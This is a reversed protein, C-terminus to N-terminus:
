AGALKVQVYRWERQTPGTYVAWAPSVDDQNFTSTDGRMYVTPSGSGTGYKNLTVTLVKTNSNLLDKVPGHGTGAPGFIFKGWDSSGIVTIPGSAGDDWTSWSEPTEIAPSAEGWAIGAASLSSSSSSSSLSSSSSSSSLSSSSSSSSISSSSSSSSRSSSSSSSSSSLSSSSSSSSSSISSSSSSSSLSSSSSSSSVSSSSSSSSSSRSSSSSSSSSSISSSSSSSSSSISSSSSSSSISSSSSSSSGNDWGTSTNVENNDSTYALWSAGGSVNLPRDTNTGDDGIHCYYVQNTGGSDSLTAATTTTSALHITYSATGTAIFSSVTQTTGTTFKVIQATTANITLTNFINSGDIIQTDGSISLVEMNYYTLGGGSFTNTTTDAQSDGFMITSQECYLTLGTTGFRWSNSHYGGGSKWQGEGMYVVRTTSGNCIITGAAVNYGASDFTGATITFVRGSGGQVISLNGTLTYTSGVANINTGEGWYNAISYSGRRGVMTHTNNDTPTTQGSARYIVNGYFEPSVVSTNYTFSGTGTFDISPMRVMDEDIHTTGDISNSDIYCTDQPLPVRTSAMQSGGGNTATYWYAYDSFNHTGSGNWYWDDATTLTLTGGGSISNNGCDGSLGSIASFDLAGTSVFAIDRFDVNSCGSITAGTLTITRATGLTNSYVLMRNLASNGDVNFTGTVTLNMSTGINLSCTKSATGTRNLTGITYTKSSTGYNAFSFSGAGTVNITGISVSDNDLSIYKDTGTFNFTTNTMTVSKRLLANGTLIITSYGFNSSGSTHVVTLNAWNHTLSANDTLGDSHLNGPYINMNVTITSNDLFYVQGNSNGLEITSLSKGNTTLQINTDSAATNLYLTGTWSITGAFKVSVTSAAAGIIVINSSGSLTNAYGTMDFSKLNATAENVACDYAASMVVDDGATPKSGEVWNGATSWNNDVGGNQWTKTAM